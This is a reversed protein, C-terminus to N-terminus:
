EGGKHNYNDFPAYNTNYPVWPPAVFHSAPAAAAGTQWPVPCSPVQPYYGRAPECWYTGAPAQAAAPTAVGVAALVLVTCLTYPFRM